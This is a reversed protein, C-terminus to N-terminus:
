VMETRVFDFRMPPTWLLANGVFFRDQWHPLRRRALAVLKESIDLGYPELVHGNELAWIAVSEMLLGNACGIDLFSGSTDVPAVILRRFREWDREDRGFGSQQRPNTGSLYKEVHLAQEELFFSQEQETLM